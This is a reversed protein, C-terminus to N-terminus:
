YLKELIPDEIEELLFLLRQDEGNVFSLIEPIGDQFIQLHQHVEAIVGHITESQDQAVVRVTRREVDLVM